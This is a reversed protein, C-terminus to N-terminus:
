GRAEVSSHMGSGLTIYVRLSSCKHTYAHSIFLIMGLCWGVIWTNSTGARDSLNTVYCTTRSSLHTICTCPASYSLSYYLLCYYQVTDAGVRLASWLHRVSLSWSQPKENVTLNAVLRSATAPTNQSLQAITHRIASLQTFNTSRGNHTLSTNHPSLIFRLGTGTKGLMQSANYRIPVMISCFSDYHWIKM